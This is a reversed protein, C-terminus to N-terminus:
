FSRKPINFFIPRQQTRATEPATNLQGSNGGLGSPALGSTGFNIGNGSLSRTANLSELSRNLNNGSFAGNLQNGMNLSTSSSDWSSILGEARPSASLGGSSLTGLGTQTSTGPSSQSLLNQFNQLRKTSPNHRSFQEPVLDGMGLMNAATVERSSMKTLADPGRDSKLANTSQFLGDFQGQYYEPTAVGDEALLEAGTLQNENDKRLNEKRDEFQRNTRKTKSETKRRNGYFVREALQRSSKSDLDTSKFNDDNGELGDLDTSGLYEDTSQFAWNNKKDLAELLAKRRKNDIKGSNFPNQWPAVVAEVSSKKGGGFEGNKGLKYPDLDEKPLILKSSNDFIIPEGAIAIAICMTSLLSIITTFKWTNM